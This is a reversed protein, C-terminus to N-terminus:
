KKNKDDKNLLALSLLSSINDEKEFKNQEFENYNIISINLDM